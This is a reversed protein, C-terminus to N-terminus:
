GQWWPLSDSIIQCHPYIRLEDEQGPEVAPLELSLGRCLHTLTVAFDQHHGPTGAQAHAYEHVVLALWDTPEVRGLDVLLTIPKTQLNCLGCINYSQALPTAWIQIQPRSTEHFCDDCAQVLTQLETNIRDINNGIWTAVSIRHDPNHMIDIMEPDIALSRLGYLYDLGRTFPDNSTTFILSNVSPQSTNPLSQIKRLILPKMSAFSPVSPPPVLAAL